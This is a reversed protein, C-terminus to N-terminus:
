VSGNLPNPHNKTQNNGRANLRQIGQNTEYTRWMWQRKLNSCQTRQVGHVIIFDTTHLLSVGEKATLKITFNRRDSTSFEGPLEVIVDQTTGFISCLETFM